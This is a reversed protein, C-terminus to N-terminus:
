APPGNTIESKSNSVQAGHNDARTIMIRSSVSGAARKMAAAIRDSNQLAIACITSGSGSLFAGLAGAKEAAAVVAPLFPVLEARFPQHLYDAFAGCLEEYDQSVFAATIACANACNAAAEAHSIKSPLLNRARSTQIEVNPVLLVFRLRSSVAFGQVVPHADWHNPRRAAGVSRRPAIDRGRVVTFGGFTAPAANDPHGELDACLQFIKVRDLPSGSLRNLALLVGLRVTASSGLGRSRPIQEAASCSFLFARRRAEKFFRHAAESVIRLHVHRRSASHAMTITNYIRLAVGLCDFGPGLNSTSAPVRVIIQEM